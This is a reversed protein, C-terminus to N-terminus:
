PTDDCVCVCVCACAVENEKKMGEMYPEGLKTPSPFAYIGQFTYRVASYTEPKSYRLLFEQFCALFVLALLDTSGVWMSPTLGDSLFGRVCVWMCVCVRACVCMCVCVGVCIFTLSQLSEPWATSQSVHFDCLLSMTRQHKHTKVPLSQSTKSNQSKELCTFFLGWVWHGKPKPPIGQVSEQLRIENKETIECPPYWEWQEMRPFSLSLLM